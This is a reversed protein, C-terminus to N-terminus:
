PVTVPNLGAQQLRMHILLPDNDRANLTGRAMDDFVLQYNTTHAETKDIRGADPFGGILDLRNPHLASIPFESLRGNRKVQEIRAFYRGVAQPTNQVVDARM